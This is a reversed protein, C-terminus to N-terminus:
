GRILLLNGHGDEGFDFISGIDQLRGDVVDLVVALPQEGIGALGAGVIAAAASGVIRALHLHVVAPELHIAELEIAVTETKDIVRGLHAIEVVLIFDPPDVIRFHDLQDFGLAPGLADDHEVMRQAGGVVLQALGLFDALDHAARVVVIGFPRPRLAHAVDQGVLGLIQERPAKGDDLHPPRDPMRDLGERERDAVGAADREVVEDDGLPEIGAALPLGVGAGVVGLVVPVPERAHPALLRQHELHVVELLVADRTPGRVGGELIGVVGGFARGRSLM